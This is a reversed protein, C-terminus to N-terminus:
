LNIMKQNWYFCNKEARQKLFKKVNILFLKLIFFHYFDMFVIRDIGLM